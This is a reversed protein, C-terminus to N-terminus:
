RESARPIIMVGGGEVEENGRKMKGENVKTGKHNM